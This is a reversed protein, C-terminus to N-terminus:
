KSIVSHPSTRNVSTMTFWIVPIMVMFSLGTIYFVGNVDVLKTLIGNGASGLASGIMMATVSLGFVSGRKDPDVVRSLKAYLIPEVGGAVCFTLFRAACLMMM